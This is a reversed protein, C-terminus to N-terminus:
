IGALIGGAGVYGAAQAAAFAGGVVPGAAGLGIAAPAGLMAMGLPILLFAM